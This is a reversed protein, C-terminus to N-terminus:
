SLVLAQCYSFYDTSHSADYPLVPWLCCPRSLVLLICYALFCLLVFPLCPRHIM